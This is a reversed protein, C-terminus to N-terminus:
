EGINSTWAILVATVTAAVALAFPASSTTSAGAIPPPEGPRREVPPGQRRIDLLVLPIFVACLVIAAIPWALLISQRSLERQGLGQWVFATALVIAGAILVLLIPIALALGIKDLTGGKM